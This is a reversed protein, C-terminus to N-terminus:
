RSEEDDGSDRRQRRFAEIRADLRRRLEELPLGATHADVLLRDLAEDISREAGARDFRPAGEEVFTGKGVRTRVLGEGELERIARAATNRNVRATVALERVTPIKDGPRLAGIAMLRRVQEVIQRYLPVPNTPDLEIM